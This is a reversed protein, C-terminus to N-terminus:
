KRVWRETNGENLVGYAVPRSQIVQVSEVSSVEEVVVVYGLRMVCMVGDDFEQIWMPNKKPWEGNM